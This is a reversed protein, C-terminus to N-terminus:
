SRRATIFFVSKVPGNVSVGTAWGTFLGVILCGTVAGLGIAKYHLKGILFGLAVTLFILLEPYPKFIHATLWHM